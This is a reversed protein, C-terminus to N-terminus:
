QRGLLRNRSWFDNRSCSRGSTWTQRQGRTWATRCRGSVSAGRRGPSSGKGSWSSTNWRPCTTPDSSASLPVSGDACHRLSFIFWSSDTLPLCVCGYAANQTESVLIPVQGSTLSVRPVIGSSLSVDSSGAVGMTSSARSTEYDRGGFAPLILDAAHMAAYFHPYAYSTRSMVVESLEEPPWSQTAGVTYLKFVGSTDPLPTFRPTTPRRMAGFRPTRQIM